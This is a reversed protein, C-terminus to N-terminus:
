GRAIEIVPAETEGRMCYCCTTEKCLNHTFVSPCERTHKMIPLRYNDDPSLDYLSKISTMRTFTSILQTLSSTIMRLYYFSARILVDNNDKLLLLLSGFLRAPMNNHAGSYEIADAM